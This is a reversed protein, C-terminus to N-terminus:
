GGHNSGGQKAAASGGNGGAAGPRGGRRYGDPDVVAEAFGAARVAARVRAELDVAAASEGRLREMEEVAIEIRGIEGHDRVRVQRFGLARLAAEAAEARRLRAISVPTGVPLRSALCAMEPKDWSPLGLYRSLRRVAAKDLGAEILPHRVGGEEAARLGPRTDGLDDLNTGDLIAAYGEARRIAELRAYLDSKCHYCRDGANAVYRPDLHEFTAAERHRAGIRAALARADALEAAALSPSVGTVALVRDGKEQVAVALVLTSDVGGSFAVIMRELPAVVAALRARDAAASAPATGPPAAAPGHASATPHPDMVPRSYCLRGARARGPAGESRAARRAETLAARPGRGRVAGEIRVAGPRAARPRGGGAPRAARVAAVARAHEDLTRSFIHTGDGRAVFYLEGGAPAAGAAMVAALAGRGPSGIATPPLGATRYTNWPSDVELDKYYLRRRARLAYAVTPDAELRMGRRLRNLYVAAIRPQEVPVRAEAEVISALIVVEEPGPALPPPAGAMVAAIVGQARTVLLALVQDPPAGPPIDYTDPYLYGELTTRGIGFARARAPDAAAAVFAASDIEAGRALVGATEWLTLGEPITVLNQDFPGSILHRIVDFPTSRPAITFRGARLKHAAGMGRGVLEFAVRSHVAGSDALIASIQRLTAGEPVRLKVERAPGPGFARLLLATLLATAVAATAFAAVSRAGPLPRM